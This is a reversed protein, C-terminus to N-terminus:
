AAKRTRRIQPATLLEHWRRWFTRIQLEDSISPHERMMGRSIDSWEVERNAFGRQCAELMEVDDPTAFGGPGLFTLFNDLRLSSDEMDEEAPALNWANVEMYDPATPFFARVTIAMIDNIILNPFILLNRGCQAIRFAREAGFREELRRQKEEIRAKALEGFSPVWRAIPRGFPSLYEIVAHGNGLDLAQQHPNDLGGRLDVGSDTLFAFYRQHTPLGHYGDISNEVLLKWNARISYAQAGDSIKMGTESQDCIVDLYERAGALYDHLAPAAHDFSIFIFGRYTDMRPPRGLAFEARNFASSYSNEGPVGILDGRCNFTWAHYPCQFSRANGHPQRCVLSGRHTCTNFLVRVAGDDGRVVILRRGAVSRSRFDGPEPIESEHGTYIWCKDFVRARELELYQNETFTRRNVRFIGARQDDIILNDVAAGKM